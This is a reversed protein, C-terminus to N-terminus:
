IEIHTRGEAYQHILAKLLTQYPVKSRKAKAKVKILDEQHIRITIRKSKNLELYNKAAEKFMQKIKTFDKSRKFMGKEFADEIEQEEQDLIIKKM